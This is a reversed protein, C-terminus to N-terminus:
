PIQIHKTHLGVNDLKYKHFEVGTSMADLKHSTSSKNMMILIHVFRSVPTHLNPQFLLPLYFPSPLSSFLMYQNSFTSSFLMYQNSLTSLQTKGLFAKYIVHQHYMCFINIHIIFTFGSRVYQYTKFCQLFETSSKIMFIEPYKWTFGYIIKHIVAVMSNERLYHSPTKGQLLPTQHITMDINPAQNIRVKILQIIESIRRMSVLYRHHWM